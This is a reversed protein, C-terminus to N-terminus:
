TKLGPHRLCISRSCPFYFGKGGVLVLNLHKAKGCASCSYVTFSHQARTKSERLELVMTYIYFTNCAPIALGM